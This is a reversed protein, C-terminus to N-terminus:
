CESVMNSCSRGKAGVIQQDADPKRSIGGPRDLRDLIGSTAAHLGQRNGIGVSRGQGALRLNVQDAELLSGEKTSEYTAGRLKILARIVATPRFFLTATERRSSAM